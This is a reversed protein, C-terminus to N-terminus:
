SHAPQGKVSFALPVSKFIKFGQFYSIGDAQRVASHGDSSLTLTYMEPQSLMLFDTNERTHCFKTGQGMFGAKYM